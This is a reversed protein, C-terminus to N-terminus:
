DPVKILNHKQPTLIHTGGDAGVYELSIVFSLTM